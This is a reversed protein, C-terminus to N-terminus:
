QLYNLLSMSLVKSAAALTLQYNNQVKALEVTLETIDASQLGSTQTQNNNQMNTLSSQLTTMAQQRAGVESAQTVVRTYVDNLSNLSQNLVSTLSSSSLPPKGLLVDRANILMDFMNYTGPVSIPESGTRALSSTDVYLVKGTKSDTVAQQGATSEVSSAGGDISLKATANISVDTTGTLSPDLGSMDVYVTDGKSNTLQIDNSAGTYAVATGDDLSVTKQDADIHLTHGDGVITDGTASDSGAAVGTNGVYQTQDHTVSLWVDGQVSSTGTGAKAGTDGLFVPTERSDCRFVNDGVLVGSQQVGPAVPVNLPQDSGTYTVSTITGSSDRQVSYPPTSSNSGGFLYQNDSQTNASSVVQELLSNIEQGIAQDDTSSSTATSAESLLQQAQVLANDVDSLSSSSQQMNTLVSSLNSSYTNLSASESDLSMIQDAAVPDDSAVNVRNGTSVEDQLQTLSQMQQAIAGTVNNYITEWGM